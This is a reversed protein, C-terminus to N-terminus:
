KVEQNFDLAYTAAEYSKLEYDYLNEVELEKIEM